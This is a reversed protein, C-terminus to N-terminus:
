SSRMRVPRPSTACRAPSSSSSAIARATRKIDAQLHLLVKDIKQQADTLGKKALMEKRAALQADLKQKQMERIEKTNSGM